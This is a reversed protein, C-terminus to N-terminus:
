PIYGWADSSWPAGAWQSGAWQSGAWQSGAWQSGAWQSGAWQSGAWQSGSMSGTGTSLLWQSGLWLSGAWTDSFYQAPDFGVAANADADTMCSGDDYKLCYVGRLAQLSGGGQAPAVGVNAPLLNLSMAAGFADVDGPWWPQNNMGGITRTTTVIRNKVQDPNLLPARQLVLAAVGSVIASSFSTGSGKAYSTGIASDPYATDITSGPSRSSVVSRGPALVDPKTYGDVTPGISSFTALKDDTLAVTTKDNSSGVTIIRPDNGPSTISGPLNNGNGAAAVVVIGDNWVREVAFDLPDVQYPQSGDFGLSLNVVRIGYVDKFDVIWELAALVKVVDTTGDAGAIKISVLKAGPAVGKVAGDSGAGTGDILGAVFTGHGYSDANNQESTFDEAHVVQGALDGSTNVGTDVVAVTVGNGTVGNGWTKSARVVDTYVASAVGSDQGYQGELHLSRDPTVWRVGPTRALGPVATRPLRAAFGDIISLPRVIHGGLRAVAQEASHTASAAASVLVTVDHTRPALASAPTAVLAAAVLVASLRARTPLSARCHDAEM